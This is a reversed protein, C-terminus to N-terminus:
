KIIESINEFCLFSFIWIIIFVLYIIKKSFNAKSSFEPFIDALATYLLGWSIISLIYFKNEMLFDVFPFTFLAWLIWGFAAIYAYKPNKHNMIYNVINQPISHLLIAITTIIGFHINVSFASFLVVWHFWNHFLTWGFMLLWNKHEESNKNHNHGCCSIWSNLDKCHHWHLLIELIYFLFLWALIFIGLSKWVLNWESTIEPLFGLFIIGLLLGVTFATIFDTYKQLKNKIKQTLFVVLIISLWIILNWLITYFFVIM